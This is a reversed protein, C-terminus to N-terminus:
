KIFGMRKLIIDMEELKPCSGCYVVQNNIVIHPVMKIRSQYIVEDSTITHIRHELDHKIFAEKVVKNTNEFDSHCSPCYIRVTIM